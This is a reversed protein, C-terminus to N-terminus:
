QGGKVVELFLRIAAVDGALSLEHLRTLVGAVQEPTYVSLSRERRRRDSHHEEVVIEAYGKIGRRILLEKKQEAADKCDRQALLRQEGNRGRGIVYWM